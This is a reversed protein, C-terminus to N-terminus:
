EKEIDYLRSRLAVYAPARLNFVTKFEDGPIKVEGKNTKFIVESTYGGNSINVRVSDIDDYADGYKDAKDRM